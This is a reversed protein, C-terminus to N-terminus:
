KGEKAEKLREETEKSAYASLHVTCALVATLLCM